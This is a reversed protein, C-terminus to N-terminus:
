AAERLQLDLGVRRAFGSSMAPDIHPLFEGLRPYSRRFTDGSMVSDKAPYIRGGAAVAVDELRALLERTPRGRDPFDLALTAGPMPFSLLGPSPVDGFTKLVALLSGQRSAAIRGLLEATAGPAVAGPVVCQFQFFGRRGYLRNWGGIRDLPYLM